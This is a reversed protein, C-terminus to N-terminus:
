WFCPTMMWTHLVFADAWAVIIPPIRKDRSSMWLTGAYRWRYLFLMLFIATRISFLCKWSLWHLTPSCKTFYTEFSFKSVYPHFMKRSNTLKKKFWLTSFFLKLYRVLLLMTKLMEGRGKAKEKKKLKFFHPQWKHLTYRLLWCNAM